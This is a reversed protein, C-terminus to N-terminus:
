RKPKSTEKGIAKQIKKRLKKGFIRDAIEDSTLGRVQEATMDKIRKKRPAM